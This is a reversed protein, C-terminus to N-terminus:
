YDNEKYMSERRDCNTCCVDPFHSTMRDSHTYYGNEDYAINNECLIECDTCCNELLHHHPFLAHMMADNSNHESDNIEFYAYADDLENQGLPMDDCIACYHPYECDCDLAYKGANVGANYASYVDFEKHSGSDNFGDQYGEMYNDTDESFCQAFPDCYVDIKSLPAQFVREDLVSDPLGNEAWTVCVDVEGILHQLIERITIDYLFVDEGEHRINIVKGADVLYTQDARVYIDDCEEDYDIYIYEPGFPGYYTIQSVQRINDVHTDHPILVQGPWFINEIKSNASPIASPIASTSM